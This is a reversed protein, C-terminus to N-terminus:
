IQIRRAYRLEGTKRWRTEGDFVQAMLRRGKLDSSASSGGVLFITERRSAELERWVLRLDSFERQELITLSGFLERWRLRSDHIERRGMGSCGFRRLGLSFGGIERLERFGPTADSCRPSCLAGLGPLRRAGETGAQLLRVRGDRGQTASKGGNWGYSM